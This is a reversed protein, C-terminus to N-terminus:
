PALKTLPVVYVGDERRYAPGGGTVVLLEPKDVLHQAFKKLGEAAKDVVDPYYGLKVEVLVTNGDVQVVADVESGTKLRAHRVTNNSYVRLDHVVQSEFLQGMYELDGLLDKPGRGLAAMALAPDVLHRKPAKRLPTRSRLEPAWAPQDVSVFIRALSDLYQAATQRTLGCDAAITAVECETAVNRALSALMDLVREPDREVGEPSNVDVHAVSELYAQHRRSTQRLPANFSAPWGGRCMREALHEIDMEGLTAEIAEGRAVAALSVAGDSDGTELFTMTSMTLRVFRGAGSHKTANQSPKTSGTFIFQGPQQRDDIEHRALDWLLPAEQWEDILRPTEGALLTAPAVGMMQSVQPDTDARLMSKAKQRATETKGCGKVGQILVGGSWGLVEELLSDAIRPIYQM